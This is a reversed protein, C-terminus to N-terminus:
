GDMLDVAIVEPQSITSDARVFVVAANPKSSGCSPQRFPLM